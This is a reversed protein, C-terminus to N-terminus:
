EARESAAQDFELNQGRRLSQIGEVVLIDGLDIDGEVLIRGKLRQKIQVEIREAKKDNSIWVYATDPGWSLASEPVVAYRDGLVELRVRFSMGPRYLDDENDMLARARLTRTTPDIRSDVNVIKAPIAASRNQWPQITLTPESQLLQAAAEPAEFNVRLKRRDDLTTIATQTDIRDGVEIDTIGVVGAFPATITRDELETEAEDLQVKIVDRAIEAADVQNQPVAGNERSKVLRELTREADMLEITARAVAIQQRRADLEVLVEGAEVRDGAEFHIATVEDAVAPYITISRLAEATGVADVRSQEREFEVQQVKVRAAQEGGWAQAQAPAQYALALISGAVIAIRGFSRM